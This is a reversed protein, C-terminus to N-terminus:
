RQMKYLTCNGQRVMASAPVAFADWAPVASGPSVFGGVCELARVACVSMATAWCALFAFRVVGFRHACCDKIIINGCPTFRMPATWPHAYCKGMAVRHCPDTTQVWGCHRMAVGCAVLGCPPQEAERKAHTFRAGKWSSDCFGEGFGRVLGLDCWHRGTGEGEQALGWAIDYSFWILVCYICIYITNLCSFAVFDYSYLITFLYM